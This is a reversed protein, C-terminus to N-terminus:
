NIQQLVKESDVLWVGHDETFKLEKLVTDRYLNSRYAQKFTAVAATNNSLMHVHMGSLNLSIHKPDTLRKIRLQEWASHSKDEPKFNPVYSGLYADVNQAQWSEAWAVVSSKIQAPYDTVPADNVMSTEKPQQTVPKVPLPKVLPKIPHSPEVDIPVTKEPADNSGVNYMLGLMVINMDKDYSDASLRATFHSSLEYEVGGTLMLSVSNDKKYKIKKNNENSLPENSLYNLGAGVFYYFRGGTLHGNNIGPFWLGSVGFSDYGIKGKKAYRWNKYADRAAQTPLKNITKTADVESEGLRTYYGEVSWNPNINYGGFVKFGTDRDKLIDQYESDRPEPAMSSLGVGAGVYWKNENVGDQNDAFAVQFGSLGLTCLACLGNVVLRNKM